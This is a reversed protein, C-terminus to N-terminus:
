LEECIKEGLGIKVQSYDVKGKSIAIFIDM